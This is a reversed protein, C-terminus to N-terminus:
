PENCTFGLADVVAAARGRIAVVPQVNESCRNTGSSGDLRGGSAFTETASSGFTRTSANWRRCILGVGHVYSGYHIRGGAVVSGTPCQALGGKGGTGGAVSGIASQAGLTGNSSVPRCLLSVADLVLGSRYQLGTLVRDAGCSRTFSTGSGGGHIPLNQPPLDDVPFPALWLSGALAVLMSGIM